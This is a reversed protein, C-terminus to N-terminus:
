LLLCAKGKCGKWGVELLFSNYTSDIEKISNQVADLLEDSVDSSMLKDTLDEGFLKTLIEYFYDESNIKM